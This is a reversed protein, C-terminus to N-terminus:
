QSMLSLPVIMRWLGIGEPVVRIAVAGLIVVAAWALGLDYQEAQIKVRSLKAALGSEGRTSSINHSESENM